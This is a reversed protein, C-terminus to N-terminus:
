SRRFSLLGQTQWLSALKCMRSHPVPFIVGQIGLAPLLIPCYSSPTAPPCSPLLLAHCFSLTAPLHPPLFIPCCSFSSPAAPPRPPLLLPARGDQLPQSTPRRPGPLTQPLPGRSQLATATTGLLWAMMMSTHSSAPGYILCAFIPIFSTGSPQALSLLYRRQAPLTIGSKQPSPSPHLQLNCAAGVEGNSPPRWEEAVVSPHLVSIPPQQCCFDLVHAVADRMGLTVGADRAGPDAELLFVPDFCPLWALFPLSRSGQSQGLSERGFPRKEDMWAMNCRCCRPTWLVELWEHGRGTYTLGGGHSTM